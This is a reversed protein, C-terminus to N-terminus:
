QRHRVLSISSCLFINGGYELVVDRMCWMRWRALHYLKSQPISSSLLFVVSQSRKRVWLGIDEEDAESDVTGVREFIDHVLNTVMGGRM